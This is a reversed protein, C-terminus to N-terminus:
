QRASRRRLMLGTTVFVFAAAVIPAPRSGTVPLGERPVLPVSSVALAVASTSTVGQASGVAAVISIVGAAIDDSTVGYTVQCEISAGAALAIPVVCADLMATLATARVPALTVSDITLPVTGVNDVHILLRVDEGAQYGRESSPSSLETVRVNVAEHPTSVTRVATSRVVVGTNASTTLTVTARGMALDSASIRHVVSCEFSTTDGVASTSRCSVNDVGASYVIDTPAVGGFIDVTFTQTLTNPRGTSGALSYGHAPTTPAEAAVIRVGTQTVDLVGSSSAQTSADVVTVLEYTLDPDVGTPIRVICDVRETSALRGVSYGGAVAAVSRTATGARCDRLEFGTQLGTMRVEALPASGIRAISVPVDFTASSADVLTARPSLVAGVTKVDATALPISIGDDASLRVDLSGGDLVGGVDPTETLKLTVTRGTDATFAALTMVCRGGVTTPCPTVSAGGPLTAPYDISVGTLAGATAIEIEVDVDLPSTAPLFTTLRAPTANGIVLAASVTYPVPVTADIDTTSATDDNTADSDSGFPAIARVSIPAVAGIDASRAIRTYSCSREAGRLLSVSALPITSANDVCMVPGNGLGGGVLALGTLDTTGLNAIMTTVTVPEGVRVATRDASARVEIRNEAFVDVNQEAHAIAFGDFRGTATMAAVGATLDAANVSRSVTCTASSLIVTDVVVCDSVTAGLPVTIAMPASEAANVSVEYYLVDGPGLPRRGDFVAGDLMVDGAEISAEVAEFGIPASAMSVVQNFVDRESVEVSSSWQGTAVNVTLDCTVPSGAELGPRADAIAIGAQAATPLVAGGATCKAEIISGGVDIGLYGTPNGLTMSVQFEALSTQSGFRVLTPANVAITAASARGAVAPLALAVLALTTATRSIRM